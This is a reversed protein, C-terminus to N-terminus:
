FWIRRSGAVFINVDLQDHNAATELLHELDATVKKTAVSEGERRERQVISDNRKQDEGYPEQANDPMYARYGTELITEIMGRAIYFPRLDDTEALRDNPFKALRWDHGLSGASENRYDEARGRGEPDLQTIAPSLSQHFALMLPRDKEEQFRKAEELKRQLFTRLPEEIQKAVLM